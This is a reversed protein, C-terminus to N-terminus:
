QEPPGLRATLRSSARTALKEVDLVQEVGWAWQGGGFRPATFLLPRQKIQFPEVRRVTASLTWLYAGPQGSKRITWTGLEAVPHWGWLVAGRHGAIRLNRFFPLV